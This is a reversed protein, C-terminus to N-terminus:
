WNVVEYTKKFINPDVPYFEGEVGKVIYSGVDAIIFGELTAVGFYTIDDDDYDPVNYVRGNTWEYIERQNDGTYKVFEIEVPKKRAKRM